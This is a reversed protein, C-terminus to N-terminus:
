TDRHQSAPHTATDMSISLTLSVESAYYRVPSTRGSRMRGSPNVLLSFNSLGGMMQLCERRRNVISEIQEKDLRWAETHRCEGTRDILRLAVVNQQNGKVKERSGKM